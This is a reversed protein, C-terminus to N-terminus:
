AGDGSAGNTKQKARARRMAIRGGVFGGTAGASGYFLLPWGWSTPGWGVLLVIVPLSALAGVLAGALPKGYKGGLLGGVGGVLACYPIFYLIFIFGLPWQGPFSQLWSMFTYLMLWFCGVLL